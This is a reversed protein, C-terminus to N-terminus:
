QAYIGNCRLCGNLIICLVCGVILALTVYNLWPDCTINQSYLILGIVLSSVYVSLFTLAGMEHPHIKKILNEEKPQSSPISDEINKENDSDYGLTHMLNDVKHNLAVYEIELDKSEKQLANYFIKMFLYYVLCITGHCILWTCLTKCKSSSVFIQYVIGIFM